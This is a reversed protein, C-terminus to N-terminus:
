ETYGSFKKVTNIMAFFNEVPVSPPIEHSSCVVYRGGQALKEIHFRVDEEVEKPTGKTLVGALDINGMVTVREGYHEHFDYIDLAGCPEFPHIADIPLEFILDIIGSFDGDIHAIIPIGKSKVLAAIRKSSPLFFKEIMERSMLPGSGTSLSMAMNFIDVGCKFIHELHGFVREEFWDILRLIFDPNDYLNILFDEYGVAFTALEFPAYLGTYVALEHKKAEASLEELRRAHTSLNFEEIRSIDERSKVYGDVYHYEGDSSQRYVRGAKWVSPHYFAYQNSRLTFEAYDQPSLEISKLGMNEELVADVVHSSVESEQFPLTHHNKGTITKIFEEKRNM